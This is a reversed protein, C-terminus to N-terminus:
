LLASPRDSSRVANRDIRPLSPLAAALLGEALLREYNVRIISRLDQATETHPTDSLADAFARQLAVFKDRMLDAESWRVAEEGKLMKEMQMMVATGAELALISAEMAAVVLTGLM